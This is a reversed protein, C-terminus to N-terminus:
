AETLKRILAIADPSSWDAAGELRARDRGARDIIVSTPIGRAKWARALAGKPDLLVPLGTIGHDRFWAEVVGVGGRDSSLPLVAIDHPALAAALRALSPMEAVCPACWTAWFNVVMGRGRFAAVQHPTGQADVFAGDPPAVPPDTLKLAKELNPLGEARPKRPVSAVALIGAAALAARRTILAM